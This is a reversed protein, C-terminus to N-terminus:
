EAVPEPEPEPEPESEPVPEPLEAATADGLGLAAIEEASLGLDAWSFPQVQGTALADQLNDVEPFDNAREAELMAAITDAPEPEPEPEPEAVPEPEPAVEAVPEDLDL